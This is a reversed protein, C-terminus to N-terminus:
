KGFLSCPDFELQGVLELLGVIEFMWVLSGVLYTPSFRVVEFRVAEFM